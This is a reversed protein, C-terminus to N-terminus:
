TKRIMKLGWSRILIIMEDQPKASIENYGIKAKWTRVVVEVNPRNTYAKIKFSTEVVKTVIENAYVFFPKKADRSIEFFGASSLSVKRGNGAQTKPYLLQRKM